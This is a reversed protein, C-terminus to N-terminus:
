GPIGRASAVFAGALPSAPKRVFEDPPAEQEITGANILIIKDGLRYAEAFDHTVLVVTRHILPKIRIFEDQLERRVIPDRASFPEDMLLIPPDLMLARAIAVRQRQGGSLSRPWRELLSLDKLNVLGMLEEIRKRIKRLEWGGLRALISINEEVTMRPFLGAEQMVYGMSRRVLDIRRHDLPRGDLRISGSSPLFM